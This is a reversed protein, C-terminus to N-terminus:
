ARRRRLLGLLGLGGLLATSAEPVATFKVESLGVYESSAGSWASDIGIRVHTIGTQNLAFMQASVTGGPSQTLELDSAVETFLTGDSSVLLDFQRVGRGTLGTQSMQWIYINELDYMGGLDITVFENDVVGGNSHWGNGFGEGFVAHTATIDNAVNLGSNNVLNATSIAGHSYSSSATASTGLIVASQASPCTCALILPLYLAPLHKRM